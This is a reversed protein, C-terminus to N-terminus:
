VHHCVGRGLGSPTYGRARSGHRNSVTEVRAAREHSRQRRRKDDILSLDKM